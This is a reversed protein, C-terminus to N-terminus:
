GRSTVQSAPIEIVCRVGKPPFSLSVDGELAKSVVNEIMARGFGSREPPTVKPGGREQWVLKLKSADECFKWSISVEGEPESLSGYKHANTALEHLALGLNQVAEPKLMVDEGEIAIKEGFREAHDGLQQEVLMRLSAGQWDDAILLDHSAGMAGLRASFRDLFDEISRTRSATQRAIAHIVALL